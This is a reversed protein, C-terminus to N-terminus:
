LYNQVVEKHKIVNAKGVNTFVLSQHQSFINKIFNLDLECHLALAKLSPQSLAIRICFTNCNSEFASLERNFDISM